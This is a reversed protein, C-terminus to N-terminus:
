PASGLRSRDFWNMLVHLTTPARSQRQIMIFRQGDPMADYNSSDITGGAFEGQFLLRSGSARAQVPDFAAIMVGNPNRYFLERSIGWVPETGGGTSIPYSRGGDAISKVYVEDHGSENSVYALWRGDPSIRPTSEDNPSALWPRAPRSDRPSVLLIDRGTDPRREVFALTEGDASWSGAIQMHDSAVIRETPAPQTLATVFLNPPGNKASTFVVRHGDPTWAAFTAGADFTLQTVASSRLDYVWLDPPSGEITVLVKQGDPSVRPWQYPQPPASLPTVVGDRGVM